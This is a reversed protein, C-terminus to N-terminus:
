EEMYLKDAYQDYWRPRDVRVGDLLDPLLARKDCYDITKDVVQALSDVGDLEYSLPQLEKNQCFRILRQLDDATYAKLLLERVASLNCRRPDIKMNARVLDEYIKNRIAYLGGDQRILGLLEMHELTPDLRTFRVTRPQELIGRLRKKEDDDLKRTHRVVHELNPDRQALVEAIVEGVAEETIRVAERSLLKKGILQVLYPHGHTQEFVCTAEDYGIDRSFGHSLIRETDELSLDDLYLPDLINELTSAESHRPRFDQAGALIFVVRALLPDQRGVTFVARIVSCVHDHLNGVADLMIVIQHEKHRQVLAKLLRLFRPGTAIDGSGPTGPEYDLQEAILGGLEQLQSEASLGAFANADVMAFAARGAFEERIKLLLSTKGIQRPGLIAGYSDPPTCLWHRAVKEIAAERGVFVGPAVPGATVFM